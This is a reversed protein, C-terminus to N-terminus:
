IRSVYMTIEDLIGLFTGDYPRVKLTAELSQPRYLEIELSSAIIIPMSVLFALVGFLQMLMNQYTFYM